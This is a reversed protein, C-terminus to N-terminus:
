HRVHLAGRDQVHWCQLGPSYQGATCPRPRWFPEGEELAMWLEGFKLNVVDNAEESFPEVVNGTDEAESPNWCDQVGEHVEGMEEPVLSMMNVQPYYGEETSFIPFGAAELKKRDEHNLSQEVGSSYAVLFARRKRWETVCHWRRPDYAFPVGGRLQHICGVHVHGELDTRYVIHLFAGDVVEVWIHGGEDPMVLPLVYVQQGCNTTRRVLTGRDYQDQLDVTAFQSDPFAQVMTAVLLQSIWQGEPDCGYVLVDGPYGYAGRIKPTTGWTTSMAAIVNCARHFPDTTQVNDVQSPAVIVAPPIAPSKGRVRRPILSVELEEM